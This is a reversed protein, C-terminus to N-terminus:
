HEIPMTALLRGNGTLIRLQILASTSIATAGTVDARGEYTAQWTGAVEQHGDAAVAVLQCHEGPAVGSLHANIATGWPRPTLSAQLVVRMRPNPGAAVPRPPTPSSFHVAVLTGSAAIAAAVAVAAAVLTLRRHRPRSAAPAPAPAPAPAASQEGAASNLLRDLLQSSPQEGPQVRPPSGPAQGTVDALTLRSLLAPLGALEALERRCSGCHGVHQDVLVRENPELAGLLYAGLCLQVQSCNM